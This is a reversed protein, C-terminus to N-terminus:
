VGERWVSPSVGYLRKFAKGFTNQSNFGIAAAIERISKETDKMLQMAHELRIAELYDGFSKGTQEKVFGFLYKESIGFKEAVYSASLNTDVYASKLYELINERLKINKSKKRKEVTECLRFSTNKLQDFLQMVNKDESYEISSLSFETDRFLDKAAFIIVNQINNYIRSLKHDPISKSQLISQCIDGLMEEVQRAEGSLLLEYLKQVERIGFFLSQEQALEETYFSVTEEKDATEMRLVEMAQSYCLRVDGFGNGTLSIGARVRTLTKEQIACIAQTLVILFEESNRSKEPELRLVVVIKDQLLCHVFVSEHLLEKIIGVAIVKALADYQHVTTNAYSIKSDTFRLVLIVYEKALFCLHRSAIEVEEATQIGGKLLKDFLNTKISTELEDIEERYGEKLKNLEILADQISEFANGKSNGSDSVSAVTQLLRRVPLSNRYAFLFSVLLGLGISLVFFLRLMSMVKEIRRTFTGAPIGAIVKLGSKSSRLVMITTTVNKLKSDYIGPESYEYGKMGSPYSMIVQGRLDTISLFGSKLMDQTCLLKRIAESDLMCVLVSDPTYASENAVPLIYTIVQKKATPANLGTGIRYLSDPKYIRKDKASFEFVWQIWQVLNKKDAEFYRNYVEQRNVSVIDKSIIINNNKYLFYSNLLLDSPMMVARMFKQASVMDFYHEAAIERDTLNVLVSFSRDNRLVVSMDQMKIIENDLIEISNQLSIYSEKVANEKVTKLTANYVPYFFSAVVLIIVIYTLLFKNLVNNYIKSRFNM